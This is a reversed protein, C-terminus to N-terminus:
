LSGGTAALALSSAAQRPSADGARLRAWSAIATLAEAYGVPDGCVDVAIDDCCHEREVRIRSSLWWVAPHYFLLTEAITQLLNVVFDHRRVHALEHALIAKVQGPTLSALVAIPLLVVPKLWGIVTPTDVEVSDIVHIERSLGLRAAIRTATALWESAPATLAEAHLRRVRWWGMGLRATLLLVGIAWFAVVASLTTGIAQEDLPAQRAAMPGSAHPRTSDTTVAVPQPRGAPAAPSAVPVFGDVGLLAVPTVAVAALTTLLGACAVGYRLQASARRCAFLGAGTALAILTGEWIFHLLTWGIVDTCATM